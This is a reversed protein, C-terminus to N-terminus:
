RPRPGVPVPPDPWPCVELSRKRLALSRNQGMASDRPALGSSTRNHPHHPRSHPLGAVREASPSKVRLRFPNCLERLMLRISALKLFALGSCNLNESDKALRRCRPHRASACGASTFFIAVLPHRLRGLTARHPEATKYASLIRKSLGGYLFPQWLPALGGRLAGRGKRGPRVAHRCKLCMISLGGRWALAHKRPGDTCWTRSAM